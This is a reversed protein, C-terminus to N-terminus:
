ADERYTSILSHEGSVANSPFQPWHASGVPSVLQITGGIYNACLRAYGGDSAKLTAETILDEAFRKADNSKVRDGWFHLGIGVAILAAGMQWLFWVAIIGIIFATKSMGKWVHYRKYQPSTVGLRLTDVHVSLSQEAIFSRFSSWHKWFDEAAECAPETLSQGFLAEIQSKFEDLSPASESM